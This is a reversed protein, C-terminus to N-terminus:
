FWRLIQMKTAKRIKTAPSHLSKLNPLQKISVGVDFRGQVPRKITVHGVNLNKGGGLIDGFHSFSSVEFLGFLCM